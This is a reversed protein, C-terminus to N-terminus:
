MDIRISRITSVVSISMEKEIFRMEAIISKLERDRRSAQEEANAKDSQHTETLTELTKQHATKITRLRHSFSDLEKDKLDLM